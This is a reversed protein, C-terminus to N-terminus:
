FASISRTGSLWREDQSALDPRYRHDVRIPLSAAAEQIVEIGTISNQLTPM